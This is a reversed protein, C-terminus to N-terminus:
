ERSVEFIIYGEEGDVVVPVKLTVPNITSGRSVQSVLAGDIRYISASSNEPLDAYSVKSSNICGPSDEWRAVAYALSAGAKGLAISEESQEAISLFATAVALIFFIVMIFYSLSKWLESIGEGIV